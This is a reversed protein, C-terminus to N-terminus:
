LRLVILDGARGGQEALPHNEGAASPECGRLTCAYLVHGSGETLPMMGEMVPSPHQREAGCWCLGMLAM